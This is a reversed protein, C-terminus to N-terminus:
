LVIFTLSFYDIFIKLRTKRNHTTFGECSKTSVTLVDQNFIGEYYIGDSTVILGNGHKKNDLWSGIYKEGNVIDDMVGYGNKMGSVWDGIYFSAANAMFNGKRLFGHGHPQGDKFHGKYVDTNSYTFVGFGNQQNDKWQGEYIGLLLRSLLEKVDCRCRSVLM